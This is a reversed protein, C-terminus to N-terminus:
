LFLACLLMVCGGGGLDKSQLGKRQFPKALARHQLLNGWGTWARRGWCAGGARRHVGAPVRAPGCDGKLALGHM